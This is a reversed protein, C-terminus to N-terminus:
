IGPKWETSFVTRSHFKQVHGDAFAFNGLLNHNVYNLRAANNNASWPSIISSVNLWSAGSPAGQLAANVVGIDSAGGVEIIAVSDPLINAYLRTQWAVLNNYIVGGHRGGDKYDSASQIYSTWFYAFSSGHVFAGTNMSPCMYIGRNLPQAKANLLEWNFTPGRPSLPMYGQYDDAYCVALQAVQRMNSACASMKASNRAKSLAPLLMSALIAIISIVVLLEILTFNWIKRM